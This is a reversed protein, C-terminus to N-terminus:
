KLSHLSRDATNGIALTSIVTEDIQTVVKLTTRDVMALSAADKKVTNGTAAQVAAPPKRTPALWTSPPKPKPTTPM